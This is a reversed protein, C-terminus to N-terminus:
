GPWDGPLRCALTPRILITCNSLLCSSAFTLFFGFAPALLQEQHSIAHTVNLYLVLEWFMAAAAPVNCNSQRGHKLTIPRM